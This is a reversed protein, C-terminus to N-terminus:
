SSVQDLAELAHIEDGLFVVVVGTHCEPSVRPDLEKGAIGLNPSSSDRDRSRDFSFICSHAEIRRIQKLDERDDTVVIHTKIEFRAQRRDHHLRNRGFVRFLRVFVNNHWELYLERCETFM